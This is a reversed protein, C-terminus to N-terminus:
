FLGGILEFKDTQTVPPGRCNTVLYLFFAFKDLLILKDKEKRYTIVNWIQIVATRM